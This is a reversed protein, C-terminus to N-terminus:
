VVKDLLSGKSLGSQIGSSIANATMAGGIAMLDNKLGTGRLRSSSKSLAGLGTSKKKGGTDLLNGILGKDDDKSLLNTLGLNNGDEKSLGLSTAQAQGTLMSTSTSLNALNGITIAM